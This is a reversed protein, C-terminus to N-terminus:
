GRKRDFRLQELERKLPQRIMPWNKDRQTKKADVLDEIAMLDISEGGAEITTRRARLEDFAAMRRLPSM